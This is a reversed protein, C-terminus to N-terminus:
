GASFRLSLCSLGGDMKQSESMALEFVDLGSDRLIAHTNEFGAPMLITDNVVLTNAAYEEGKPVVVCDFGELAPNDAYAETILLTDDDLENISSKLHLGDHVNLTRCEFGEDSLISALQDAGSQNTRKSIGILCRKGAILVDGGELTGPEKIRTLDRWKRLERVMPEVEGARSPAGPRTIIAQKPTIVAVDEVFHADPHGPLPPLSTVALGIDKLASVYAEHQLLMTPYDPAGLSATTLGDAFSAGPERVIATNCEM